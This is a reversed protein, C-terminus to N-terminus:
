DLRIVTQVALNYTNKGNCYLFGFVDGSLGNYGNNYVPYVAIEKGSADYQYVSYETAEGDSAQQATETCVLLGYPTFYYVSAEGIKVEDSKKGSEMDCTYFYGSDTVVWLVGDKYYWREIKRTEDIAKLLADTNFSAGATDLKTQEDPIDTMFQIAASSNKVFIEGSEVKCMWGDQATGQECFGANEEALSDMSDNISVQFDYKSYVQGSSLDIVIDQEEREDLTVVTLLTYDNYNMSGTNWQVGRVDDYYFGSVVSGMDVDKVELVKQTNGDRSALELIYYTGNVSDEAKTERLVNQSPGYTLIISEGAPEAERENMSNGEFLVNGSRDMIFRNAAGTLFCDGQASISADFYEDSEAKVRGPAWFTNYVTGDEGALMYLKPSGTQEESCYYNGSCAITAMAKLYLQEVEAARDKNAAIRGMYRAYEDDTEASQAEQELQDNRWQAADTKIDYGLNQKTIKGFDDYTGASRLLTYDGNIMIVDFVYPDETTMANMMYSLLSDAALMTMKYATKRVDENNLAAGAVKEIIASGTESDTVSGIDEALKDSFGPIAKEILQYAEDIQEAYEDITDMYEISSQECYDQITSDFSAYEDEYAAKFSKNGAWESFDDEAERGNGISGTGDQDDDSGNWGGDSDDTINQGSDGDGSGNWGGDDADSRSGSGGNGAEMGNQGDQRDASGSGDALTSQGSQIHAMETGVKISVALVVILAVAGIAIFKVYPPLKKHPREPRNDHVPRSGYGSGGNPVPRSGHGAANDRAARGGSAAPNVSGPHREHSHSGSKQSPAGCFPCFMSDEPIKKGCKTCFM